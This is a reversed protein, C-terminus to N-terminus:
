YLTPTLAGAALWGGGQQQKKLTGTGAERGGREGNGPRAEPGDVWGEGSSYFSNSSNNGHASGVVLLVSSVMVEKIGGLSIKKM